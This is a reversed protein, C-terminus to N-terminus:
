LRATRSRGCLDERFFAEAQAYDGRELDDQAVSIQQGHLVGEFGCLRQERGARDEVLGIGADAAMDEASKESEDQALFRNVAERGAATPEFPLRM